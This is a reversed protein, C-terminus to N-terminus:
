IFEYFQEKQSIITEAIQVANTAAGKRINDAVIWMNLGNKVTNDRRIRSVFVQDHGVADINTFYTKDDQSVILNEFRQMESIVDRIDFESSLEINVSEGHAYYVPVRVATSTIAINSKMIKNTERMIKLEELSYGSEDFEDIQPILNSIIPKKFAVPKNRSYMLDNLGEYGAGSVSQYSSIVIRKIGYKRSLPYLANVLQVTSCNPNAILKQGRIEEANIEPVVLPVERDMRWRSSNDIVICNKRSLIPSFISSLENNVCMFVFHCNPFDNINTQKITYIKGGAYIQTGESEAGAFLYLKDLPFKRTFLMEIVKQGVLGSAGIVAIDYKKIM